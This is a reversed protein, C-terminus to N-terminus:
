VHNAVSGGGGGSSGGGGGSYGSSTAGGGQPAASWLVQVEAMQAVYEFFKDGPHAMQHHEHTFMKIAPRRQDRMRSEGGIELQLTEGADQLDWTDLRYRQFLKSAIATRHQEDVVVLYIEIKAHKTAQRDLEGRYEVPIDNLTLKIGSSAGDTGEDISSISGITGGGIWVREIGQADPFKIQWPLTCVYVPDPLDVFIGLVPQCEARAIEEMMAAPLDRDSM